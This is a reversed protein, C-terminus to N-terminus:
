DMGSFLEQAAATSGSGHLNLVLAVGRSSNYDPPIHVIVTRQHGGIDPTLTTSGTQARGGCGPSAAGRAAAESNSFSVPTAGANAAGIGVSALAALACAASRSRRSSLPRGLGPAGRSCMSAPVVNLKAM